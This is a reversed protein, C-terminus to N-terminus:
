DQGIFERTLKPYPMSQRPRMYFEIREKLAAYQEPSAHDTTHRLFTRTVFVDAHPKDLTRVPILVEDGDKGEPKTLMVAYIRGKEPAVKSKSVRFHVPLPPKKAPM